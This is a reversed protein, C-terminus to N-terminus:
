IMTGLSDEDGLCSLRGEAIDYGRSIWCKSEVADGRSCQLVVVASFSLEALKSM